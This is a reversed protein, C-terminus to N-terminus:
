DSYEMHPLKNEEPVKIIIDGMARCQCTLRHDENLLNADRCKKEFPSLESIKDMGELVIAKCTTCRGKGGCAHMWDIFNNQLVKLISITSDKFKVSKDPLNAITIQPM